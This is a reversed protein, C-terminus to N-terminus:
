CHPVQDATQPDNLMQLSEIADQLKTVKIIRPSSATPDIDSCNAAPLLFVTAGARGAGIIKQKVGGIAGIEGDANIEGSGAVIKNAFLSENSLKEYLGLAFILGGSPGAIAPDIAYDVKINHSYADELDVGIRAIQPNDNGAAATLNVVLPQGDRIIDIKVADGPRLTGLSDLVQTKTQVRVDNVSVIKDAVQLKDAAPGASSVRKVQVTQSVSFGSQRLAAVLAADQSDAMQQREAKQIEEASRIDSYVFARPLITSDRGALSILAQPLTLSSDAKTVAVTTLLLKGNAPENAMGEIKIVDKGNQTSLVDLTAGPSWSVFPVPILTIAVSLAVFLVAASITTALSGKLKIGSM